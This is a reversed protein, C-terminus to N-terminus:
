LSRISLEDCSGKEHVRRHHATGRGGVDGRPAEEEEGGGLVGLEARHGEEGAGPRGRQHHGPVAPLQAGHARDCAADHCQRVMGARTAGKMFCNLELESWNVGLDM